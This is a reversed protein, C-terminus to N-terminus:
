DLLIDYLNKHYIAPNFAFSTYDSYTNLLVIDTHLFYSISHNYFMARNYDGPVFTWMYKNYRKVITIVFDIYDYLEWSFM